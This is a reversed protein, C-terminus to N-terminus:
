RPSSSQGDNKMKECISDSISDAFMGGIIAILCGSVLCALILAIMGYALNILLDLM